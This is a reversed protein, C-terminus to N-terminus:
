RQNFLSISFFFYNLFHGFVVVLLIITLISILFVFLITNFLSTSFFIL